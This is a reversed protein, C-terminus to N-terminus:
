DAEDMRRKLEALKADFDIEDRRMPAEPDVRLDDVDVGFEADFERAADAESEDGSIKDAMRDFDDFLDATGGLAERAGTRGAQATLSDRKARAEKVKSMM